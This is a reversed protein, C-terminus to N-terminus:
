KMLKNERLLKFIHKAQTHATRMAGLNLFGKKELKTKLDAFSLDPNQCMIEIGTGFASAVREKKPKPEKKAKAKKEKKEPDKIEDEDATATDMMFEYLTAFSKYGKIDFKDPYKAAVAKLESYSKCADIEIVLPNTEVTEVESKIANANM